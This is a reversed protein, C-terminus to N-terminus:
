IDRGTRLKVMADRYAEIAMRGEESKANTATLIILDDQPMILLEAFWYDDSGTHYLAEVSGDPRPMVILGAAYPVESGAPVRHLEALTSSSLFGVRGKGKAGDLHLRAFVLWSQLTSHIGGAPTVEPPGLQAELRPDLPVWRDAVRFHGTPESLDAPMNPLGFGAEGMGLPEWVQRRLLAEYSDKGLREAIAGAIIYGLNSYDHKAGTKRSLPRAVANKLIAYRRQQLLLPERPGHSYLALDGNGPDTVGATHTLLHRITVDRWGEAMTSSLEPFITVLQTDFSIEGAEVFRALLTATMAKANSGIHWRDTTTVRETSGAFRVGAVAEAVIGRHWVITAIGPLRGEKLAVGLGRRVDAQFTNAVPAASVMTLPLAALAAVLFCSQMFRSM